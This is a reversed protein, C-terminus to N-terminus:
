LLAAQVEAPRDSSGDILHGPRGFVKRCRECLGDVRYATFYYIYFFERVPPIM